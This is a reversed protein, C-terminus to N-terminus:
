KFYTELYSRLMQRYGESDILYSEVYGAGSFMKSMTTNPNLRQRETVIQEIKEAGIFTDRGGYIICVPIPLRSIQTALNYNGGEGASVRIAYPVFYKTVFAFKSNKEVFPTIYDDSNKAPSDLILGVIYNVDFGLDVIKKSYKELVESDSSPPLKDIALLCASCGSGIGYLIVNKTVSIKKVHKIAGLVDQWELYGYGCIAGDSEGSNRLDFLFVNYHMNLFDNIMEVMSVSFPMRNSQTDHVVIITSIPDDTKFFWGSLLTQEDASTFTTASYSPLINSPVNALPKKEISMMRNATTATMVIVAITIAALISFVLAVRVILKSISLKNGERKVLGRGM